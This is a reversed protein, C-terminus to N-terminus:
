RPLTCWCRSRTTERTAPPCRCSPTTAPPTPRAIPTIEPIHPPNVEVYAPGKTFGTEGMFGEMFGRMGAIFEEETQTEMAKAMAVKDINHETSMKDDFAVIDEDVFGQPRFSFLNKSKVRANAM